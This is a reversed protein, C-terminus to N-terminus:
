PKRMPAGHREMCRVAIGAVKRIVHLAQEDGPNNVWAELARRVYENLMVLHDGVSHNRMRGQEFACRDAGLSDQYARETDIAIYVDERGIKTPRVASDVRRIVLRDTAALELPQTELLHELVKVIDEGSSYNGYALHCIDGSDHSQTVEYRHSMAEGCSPPQSHRDDKSVVPEERSARLAYEAARFVKPAHWRPDSIITTPGPYNQVFWETFKALAEPDTSM